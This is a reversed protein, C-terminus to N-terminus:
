HHRRSKKNRRRLTKKIRSFINSSVNKLAKFTNVLGKKVVPTGKKTVFTGVNELGKEVKPLMTATTSSIKKMSKRFFNNKRMKSKAM